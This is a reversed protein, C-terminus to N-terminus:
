QADKKQAIRQYNKLETLIAEGWEGSESMIAEHLATAYDAILDFSRDVGDVDGKFTAQNRCWSVRHRTMLNEIALQTKLYRIHGETWNFLSNAALCAGAVALFLYGLNSDPTPSLVQLSGALPTLVGISGFLWTFFRCLGSMKAWDKRRKYYFDVEAKALDDIAYFLSDLSQALEKDQWSLASVRSKFHDFRVPDEVLNLKFIKQLIAM